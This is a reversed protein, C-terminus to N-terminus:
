SLQYSLACVQTGTMVYSATGMSGGILVPQGIDRYKEPIDPHGPAFARTAGKRCVCDACSMIHTVCAPMYVAMPSSEGVQFAQYLLRLCCVWFM